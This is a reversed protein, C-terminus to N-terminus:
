ESRSIYGPLEAAADAAGLKLARKVAAKFDSKLDKPKILPRFYDAWIFEMYPTTTKAFGGRQQVEGALSRYPDDDMDALKKPIDIIKRRKGKGDFPHVWSNRTMTKWFETVTLKSFDAEVLVPATKFGEKLLACGLHHHDIIYILNSPGIVVRIPRALIFDVLEQPQRLRQRLSKRKEKVRLKGVAIQTPRLNKVAISQVNM